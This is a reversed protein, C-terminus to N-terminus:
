KKSVLRNIAFTLEKIATILLYDKDELEYEEKITKPKISEM